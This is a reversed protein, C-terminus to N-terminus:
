PEKTAFYKELKSIGVVCLVFVHRTTEDGAFYKVSLNVKPLFWISRMAEILFNLTSDPRLPHM